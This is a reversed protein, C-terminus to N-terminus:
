SFFVSSECNNISIISSCTIRRARPDHSPFEGGTAPPTYSQHRIQQSIFGGMDVLNLGNFLTNLNGENLTDEVTKSM